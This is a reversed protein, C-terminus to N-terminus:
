GTALISGGGGVGRAEAWVVWRWPRTSGPPAPPCHEWAPWGHDPEARPATAQSGSATEEPFRSPDGSCVSYVAAEGLVGGGAVGWSPRQRQGGGVGGGM